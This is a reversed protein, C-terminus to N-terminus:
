GAAWGLRVSRRCVSHGRLELSLLRLDLGKQRKCVFGATLSKVRRLEVRGRHALDQARNGIPNAARVDHPKEWGRASSGSLVCHFNAEPTISWAYGQRPISSDDHVSVRSRKARDWKRSRMRFAQALKERAHPPESAVVRRLGQPRPPM